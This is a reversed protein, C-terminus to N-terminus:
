QDTAPCRPVCRLELACAPTAVLLLLMLSRRKPALGCDCKLLPCPLSPGTGRLCQRAGTHPEVGARVSSTARHVSARSRSRHVLAAQEWQEQRLPRMGADLGAVIWGFYSQTALPTDSSPPKSCPGSGTGLRSRGQPQGAGRRRGLLQAVGPLQPLSEPLPPRHPGVEGQLSPPQLSSPGDTHLLVWRDTIQM